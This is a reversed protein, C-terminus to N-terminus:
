SVLGASAQLLHLGSPHPWPLYMVPLHRLSLLGVVSVVFQASQEAHWDFWYM